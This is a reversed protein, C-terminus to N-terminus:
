WNAGRFVEAFRVAANRGAEEAGEVQVVVRVLTTDTRNYRLADAALWFKAAWESAVVRYPTQYWYLVVARSGRNAVTYQNVEIDGIRRSGSEVPTWGAGPLCVKPSHPQKRGGRQSQFWAISLHATAPGDTEAYTRSLTADAGLAALIVPDIADDRLMSWGPLEKPFAELRPVPPLYEQRVGFHVALAQAALVLAIGIQRADPV